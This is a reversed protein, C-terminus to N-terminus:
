ERRRLGLLGLLALGLGAPASGGAHDCGIGVPYDGKQPRIAEGMDRDFSSSDGQGLNQGGTGGGGGTSGGGGTGPNSGSGDGGLLANPVYDQIWGIHADVRTVGNQGNECQPSVWSNVGALELTGETTNEFAAGGSDGSCLNTGPSFSVIFHSDWGDVAIYTERKTGADDANDGTIGFGVFTMDQGLWSNEPPEDNLVALDVGTKPSVLRVLGIDNSLSQDNYGPHEVYEAIEIADTYGDNILDGGFLVTADMGQGGLGPIVEVCHAATLVWEPDILTGSCFVYGGWNALGALAVVNPYGNTESGNVINLPPLPGVLPRLDEIPLDLPEFHVAGSEDVVLPGASAAPLLLALTALLM